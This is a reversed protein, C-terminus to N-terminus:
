RATRAHFLLIADVASALSPSICRSHFVLWPSPPAGSVNAVWVRRGIQWAYYVEMATGVSPRDFHVLVDTSNFIDIKDQEVIAVANGAERGRYDRCMPNFVRDAGLVKTAAARWDFCEADSCGNIPGALYVLM